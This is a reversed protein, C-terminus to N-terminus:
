REGALNLSPRPNLSLTHGTGSTTIRGTHAGILPHMQRRCAAIWGRVTPCNASFPPCHSQALLPWRHASLRRRVRSAGDRRHQGASPPVFSAHGSRIVGLVPHFCLRRNQARGGGTASPTGCKAKCFCDRSGATVGLDCRTWQQTFPPLKSGLVPGRARASPSARVRTL